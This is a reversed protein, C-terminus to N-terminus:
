CVFVSEFYHTPGCVDDFALKFKLSTLLNSCVSAVVGILAAAPSGVYGAAPTIAVVAFSLFSTLCLPPPPSFVPSSSEVVYSWLNCGHLVRRREVEARAQLGDGDVDSRGDLGGLKHQLHRTRGEPKRCLDLRRQLRDLRGLPLRDRDGTNTGIRDMILAQLVPRLTHCRVIYSVNHPKFLLRETGWGRRKGLYISYVLGTV